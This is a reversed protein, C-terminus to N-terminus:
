ESVGGVLDRRFPRVKWEVTQRLGALSREDTEAPTTYVSKHKELAPRVVGEDGIPLSRGVFSMQIAVRRDKRIAEGIAGVFFDQWQPCGPPPVPRQGTGDELNVSNFGLHRWETSWFKVTQVVFGMGRTLISKLLWSQFLTWGIVAHRWRRDRLNVGGCGVGALESIALCLASRFAEYTAVYQAAAKAVQRKGKNKWGRLKEEAKGLREFAHISEHRLRLDERVAVEGVSRHVEDSVLRKLSPVGGAGAVGTPKGFDPHGLGWDAPGGIAGTAVEPGVGGYPATESQATWVYGPITQACRAAFLSFRGCGYGYGDRGSRHWPLRAAPEHISGTLREGIRRHLLSGHCPLLIKGLADLNEVGAARAVKSEQFCPGLGVGSEDWSALRGSWNTEDAVAQALRLKRREVEMHLDTQKRIREVQARIKVADERNQVVLRSHGRVLLIPQPAVPIKVDWYGGYRRGTPRRPKVFTHSTLTWKSDLVNENFTSIKLSM